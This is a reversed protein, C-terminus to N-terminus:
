IPCVVGDCREPISASVDVCCCLRIRIFDDQLSRTHKKFEGVEDNKLTLRMELVDKESRLQSIMKDKELLLEKLEQMSKSDTYSEDAM